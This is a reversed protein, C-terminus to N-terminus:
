LSLGGGKELPMDADIKTAHCLGKTIRRVIIETGRIGRTHVEDHNV